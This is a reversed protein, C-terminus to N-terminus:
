DYTPDTVNLDITVTGMAVKDVDQGGPWELFVDWVARRGELKATGIASIYLDLTGDADGITISGDESPTESISILAPEGAKPAVEARAECGTIDRRPTYGNDSTAGPLALTLRRRWSAGRHLTINWNIPEM